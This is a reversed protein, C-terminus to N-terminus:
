YEVSSDKEGGPGGGGATPKDCFPCITYRQGVRQGCSLCIKTNDKRMEHSIQPPPTGGEVSRQMRQTAILQERQMELQQQQMSLQQQQARMMASQQRDVLPEHRKMWGISRVEAIILLILAILAICGGIIIIYLNDRAGQLDESMASLTLIGGLIFVSKGITYTIAGIGGMVPAGVEKMELSWGWIIFIFPVGMWLPYAVKPDFMLPFAVWGVGLVLLGVMHLVFGVLVMTGHKDGYIDRKVLAIIDCVLLYIAFAPVILCLGCMALTGEALDGPDGSRLKIFLIMFFVEAIFLVAMAVLNLIQNTVGPNSRKYAM